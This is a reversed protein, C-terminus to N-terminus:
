GTSPAATESASFGRIRNCIYEPFMTDFALLCGFREFLFLFFIICFFLILLVKKIENFTFTQDQALIITTSFSLKPCCQM